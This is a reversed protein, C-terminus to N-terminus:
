VLPGCKSAKNIENNRDRAQDAFIVLLADSSSPM